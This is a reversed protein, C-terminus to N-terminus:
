CSSTSKVSSVQKTAGDTATFTVTTTRKGATCGVSELYPVTKGSVKATLKPYTITEALLSSYLGLNGANTSVPPPLPTDLILTTGSQKLTGTWPAVSGTTLGACQHGAPIKFFNTLKGGGANWVDLVPDCPTGVVTPASPSWLAGTVPGTGVLAGKPCGADTGAKVITAATCVPFGKYNVKVKPLSLKIDTLPDAQANTSGAVPKAALKQVYGFEVPKAATGAGNQKGTVTASYTNLTAALAVGTLVLAVITTAAIAVMRMRRM